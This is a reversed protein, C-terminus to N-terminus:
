ESETSENVIDFCEVGKVQYILDDDQLMIFANEGVYAYAFSYAADTTITSTTNGVSDTVPTDVKYNLTVVHETGDFGYSEKSRYDAIDGRVISSYKAVLDKVASEDTVENGDITFSVVNELVPLETPALFDFLGKGFVTILTEDAMYIDGNYRLYYGGTYNNLNGVEFTYDTGQTITVTLSPEDFGYSSADDIDDLKRMANVEAIAQIMTTVSNQVLPFEPDGDYSWQGATQTFSLEAGNYSYKFASVGDNTFGALLINSDEPVVSQPEKNLSSLLFCAVALLVVVLVLIILKISRKGM